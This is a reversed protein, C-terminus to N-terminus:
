GVRGVETSQTEAVQSTVWCRRLNFGSNVTAAENTEEKLIVALIISTNKSVAQPDIGPQINWKQGVAWRHSTEDIARDFAISM